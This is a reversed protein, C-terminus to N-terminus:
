KVVDGSSCMESSSFGSSSTQKKVSLDATGSAGTSGCEYTLTGSVLTLKKVAKGSDCGGSTYVGASAITIAGQLGSRATAVSDNIATAIGSPIVVACAPTVKSNTFVLGTVGWTNCPTIQDVSSEGFSGSGAGSDQDTTCNITVTSGSVTLSSFKKDGM